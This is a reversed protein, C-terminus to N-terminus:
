SMLLRFIQSPLRQLVWVDSMEVHPIGLSSRLEEHARSQKETWHDEDQRWLPHGLVVARRRDNRVIALLGHPTEAIHCPVASQFARNFLTALQESRSIWRTEDLPRGSALTAVDLALRWDLAGHIRRNDYSRLCDPCSESCLQHEPADYQRSLNTVIDELIRGLNEPRGLEPAYGAGNELADAIFIRHTRVNNIFAAQLGVQLEDPKVDLTVLCGRRLIEAFSWMASHGAPLIARDTPLVNGHLALQDLSLVLVDTPRVDGIAIPDRPNGGTVDVRLGDEYLSSDTCVLSNRYEIVQFLQSRNDNIRVVEAQDLQRVSMAGITTPTPGDEPNVALEAGSATAVSENTDDFDQPSYDTRFGLPQHLPIAQIDGGCILCLSPNADDNHAISVTGCGRCRLIPIMPGLPDRPVARTGRLDYAAFGVATHVQGDKVVEAGPAFASIAMDLARDTVLYDDLDKAQTAWRRYLPRVRTPFGFMPLVGANALLKSLEEQQYYPNAVADDVARLLEMQCWAVLDSINESNLETCAALRDVVQQVEASTNLWLRIEARRGPWEDVRGFIGHISEGTRDPPQSCAHFARRLTEAAAVRKIIRTRGLDLYPQPPDDGTIRETHTFYYDDHSRDRVLTLAYSFAQGARGARGVRQQYNFRQPPVNAMMVSRLSGIDVGVEMTTTVSLVDILATLHDEDPPPLLAGRFQRQRARQVALPKTQGTLEEVRLRRPPLSALWGYYDPEPGSNTPDIPLRRACGTATCVGASRHLHIRACMPCVWRESTTAVMLELRSNLSTTDLVWGPAVGPRDITSAAAAVLDDADVGHRDAVASLYSRVARPVGSSSNGGVFRRSTGLIRIIAQTAERSTKVALPWGTVQVDAQVIALGISEIDRGARDFAAGALERSLLEQHRGLDDVALEAPLPNWLGPEPPTHVRHWRQTPDVILQRMSAGPGAPNVGLGILENMIRQRVLPWPQRGARAEENAEFRAIKDVEEASATGASQKIYARYLAPEQQTVRDLEAAEYASLSSDDQAARRLVDARPPSPTQLQKRLLQRVLDRFHNREVGAATRAADDRSDTFVITRSEAPTEGMSRHLQSLLLQSAQSLGATHARIPSRVIGRFFKQLSEQRGTQLECRPCREPLAPVRGPDPVGGVTLVVGTSPTGGPVLLGLFPDWNAPEFALTAQGGSPAQHTWSRQTSLRGPRYWRFARHPRRFVLQASEAPVEVPSPMLFMEGDETNRAVFGGVSVDGCEFCYLLELVRGGCGCTSTPIDFLKGVSPQARSTDVLDCQPNTCAWIGRMTRAFMHVRFSISSPDGELAELAELAVEMASSDPEAFLKREIDPLRTARVSGNDSRCAQAFAAPLSLSRATAALRERREGEGSEASSLLAAHPVPLEATMQRPTGSTLHFSSKPVGFFGELYELGSDSDSLSASTGICRLHPSDPSLGLRNLLNRVIMAVESGATGRYLHLEDVVLTFIGGAEIWQRTRDFLPEEVDRMLMANLMSYNTVLLDPPAAVMDWRVVMEGQTPDPFQGLLDDAVGVKRLRDYEHQISRVEDAVSDLRRDRGGRPPPSGTGLTSSTYRGFWLRPGGENAALSRIARRLRTIQDEVLANTPYLVLARTAAPRADTQRSPKWAPRPAAWWSDVPPDPAYQLAEDVIRALIPLLFAETKGSGTGSTVVVNRGAATGQQLSHVLAEAQHYRLRIPQGAATYRGFLAHGVLETTKLSLGAQAATDTLKIEADYPLVPELLVDTFVAHRQELLRRREAMLAPDRLWYATDVYRLYADRIAQYVTAPTRPM